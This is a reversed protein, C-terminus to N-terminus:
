LDDEQLVLLSSHLEVVQQQDVHRKEQPLQIKLCTTKQSKFIINLLIKNKFMQLFGLSYFLYMYKSGEM